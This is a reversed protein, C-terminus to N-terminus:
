VRSGARCGAAGNNDVVQKPASVRVELGGIVVNGELSAPSASRPDAADGRCESSLMKGASNWMCNVDSVPLFLM